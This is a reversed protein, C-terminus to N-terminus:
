LIRIALDVIVGYILLFTVIDKDTIENSFKSHRRKTTTEVIDRGQVLTLLSRTLSTRSKLMPNCPAGELFRALTTSAVDPRLQSTAYFKYDDAQHTRPTKFTLFSLLESQLHNSISGPTQSKYREEDVQNLSFINNKKNM